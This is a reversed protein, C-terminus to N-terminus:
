MGIQAVFDQWASQMSGEPSYARAQFDGDTPISAFSELGVNGYDFVPFYQPLAQQPLGELPTIPTQQYPMGGGVYEASGPSVPSQPVAQPDYSPAMQVQQQQQPPDQMMGNSPVFTRLYELVYPHVQQDESKLPLPVVPNLSTPSRDAIQPSASKEKQAVLRTRGGLISLEDQDDAPTSPESISNTRSPSPIPMNNRHAALCMHARERLKLMIDQVRHM